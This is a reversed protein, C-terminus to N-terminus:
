FKPLRGSTELLLIMMFLELSRVFPIVYDFVQFSGVGSSGNDFLTIVPLLFLRFLGRRFVFQTYGAEFFDLEENATEVGFGVVLDM